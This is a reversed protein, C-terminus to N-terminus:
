VCMSKRVEAPEGPEGEAADSAEDVTVHKVGGPRGESGKDRYPQITKHKKACGSEHRTEDGGM